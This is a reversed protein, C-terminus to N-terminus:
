SVLDKCMCRAEPATRNFASCAKLTQQIVNMYRVDTEMWIWAEPFATRIREVMKLQTTKEAQDADADATDPSEAGAGRSGGVVAPLPAPAPLPGPAPLTAAELSVAQDLIQVVETKFIVDLM